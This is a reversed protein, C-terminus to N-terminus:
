HDVYCMVGAESFLVLFSLSTDNINIDRPFRTRTGKGTKTLFQFLVRGESKKWPRQCNKKNPLVLLLSM